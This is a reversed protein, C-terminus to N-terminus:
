VVGHCCLTQLQPLHHPEGPVAQSTDVPPQHCYIRPWGKCCTDLRRASAQFKSASLHPTRSSWIWRQRSSTIPAQGGCAEVAMAQCVGACAQDRFRTLRQHLVTVVSVVVWGLRRATALYAAAPGYVVSWPSKRDKQKVIAANLMKTLACRPLWSCWTAEAWHGIPDEHAAFAPDVMGRPGGDLFILVLDLEGSGGRSGAAAIAVRQGHLMSNSVGTKAQGYVMAAIGGTRLVRSVAHAGAMRRFQQFQTKRARFAKLRQAQVKVNRKNGAGLAGGLSKARSTFNIRLGPLRDIVQKATDKKAALIANKTPSWEMGIKQM